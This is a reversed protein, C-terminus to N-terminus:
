KRTCRTQMGQVPQKTVKSRTRHAPVDSALDQSATKVNDKAKQKNGSLPGFSRSASASIAEPLAVPAPPAKSKKTPRDDVLGHEVVADMVRKRKEKMVVPAPQSEAVPLSPAPNQELGDESGRDLDRGRKRKVARPAPRSKAPLLSPVPKQMAKKVVAKGAPVVTLSLPLSSSASPSESQLIHSELAMGTPKHAPVVNHCRADHRCDENDNDDTDDDDIDSEAMHRDSRQRVRNGKSKPLKGKRTAKTRKGAPAESGSEDTSLDKVPPRMEKDKDQWARFVLVLDEGADQRALWFQLLSDVESAQLKSPDKLKSGPPFYCSSVFASQSDRIATWPVSV